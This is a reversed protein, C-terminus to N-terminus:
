NEENEDPSVELLWNEQTKVKDGMNVQNSKCKQHWVTSLNKKFVKIQKFKRREESPRELAKIPHM